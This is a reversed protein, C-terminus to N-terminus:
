EGEKQSDLLNRQEQLFELIMFENENFGSYLAALFMALIEKETFREKITESLALYKIEEFTLKNESM